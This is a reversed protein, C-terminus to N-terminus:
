AHLKQKLTETLQIVKMVNTVKYKQFIKRKKRNLKGNAFGTIITIISFEKRWSNIQKQM